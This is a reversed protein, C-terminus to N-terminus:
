VTAEAFQQARHLGGTDEDDAIDHEVLEDPAADGANGGFGGDGDNFKLAFAQHGASGGIDCAVQGCQERLGLDGTDDSVVGVGLREGLQESRVPYATLPEDSRPRMVEVLVRM